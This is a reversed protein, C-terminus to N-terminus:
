EDAEYAASSTLGDPPTNNDQIPSHKIPGNDGSQIAVVASTTSLVSPSTYHM